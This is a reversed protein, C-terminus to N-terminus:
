KRKITAQNFKSKNKPKIRPILIKTPKTAKPPPPYLKLSNKTLLSPPQLTVPSLFLFITKSFNILVAMLIVKPLWTKYSYKEQNLITAFAIILLVVVFFMNAVDRVIRWGNEVAQSGIFDNYQAVLVLTKIILVLIVGLASIIWGIIGGLLEAAWEFSAQAPAALVFVGVAAILGFFFLVKKKNNITKM